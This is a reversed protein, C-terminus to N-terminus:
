WKEKEADDRDTSGLRVLYGGYYGNSDNRYELTIAEGNDLRFTTRYCQLCDFGTMDVGDPTDMQSDEVSVLTRYNVENPVELHEIWSTSCCDGEVGYRITGGDQFTFTVEDKADNLTVSYLPRDPGLGQWLSDSGFISLLNRGFSM